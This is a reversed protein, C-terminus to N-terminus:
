MFIYLLHWHSRGCGKGSIEGSWLTCEVHNENYSATLLGAFASFWTEAWESEYAREKGWLKFVGFLTFCLWGQEENPMKGEWVYSFTSAYLESGQYKTSTLSWHSEGVEKVRSFRRPCWNALSSLHLPSRSVASFVSIETGEHFWFDRNRWAISDDMGYGLRLASYM